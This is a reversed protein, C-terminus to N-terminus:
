LTVNSWYNSFGNCLCNTKLLELTEWMHLLLYKPIISQELSVKSSYKSFTSAFTLLPTAVIQFNNRLYAMIKIVSILKHGVSSHILCWVHCYGSIFTENM